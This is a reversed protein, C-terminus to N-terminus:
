SARKKGGRLQAIRQYSMNAVKGADRMTLGLDDTLHKISERALEGARQQAAESEAYLERAKALENLVVAPRKIEIAVDFADIGCDLTVAIAERANREVDDLRRAQSHAGKVEPIQIIWWGPEREVVVEYSPRMTGVLGRRSMAGSRKTHVPAHRSGSNSPPAGDYHV